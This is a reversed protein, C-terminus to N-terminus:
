GSEWRLIPTYRGLDGGGVVVAGECEVWAHALFEGDAQKVVGIHLHSAHNERRLLWQAALAQVLCTSKPVLVSARGIARSIQAASVPSQRAALSASRPTVTEMFRKIRPLPVLWLGLRCCALAALARWMLQKEGASLAAFKLFFRM